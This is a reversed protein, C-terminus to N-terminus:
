ITSTLSLPLSTLSPPSLPLHPLSTLSPPSLPLHSLSTLSPPSLSTLSPPSLSLYTLPLHPPLSLSPPSPSLSTPLSPLSPFLSPLSPPFHPFSPPHSPPTLLTFSTFYSLPPSSHSPSTLPALRMVSSDTPHWCDRVQAARVCKISVLIGTLRSAEDVALQVFRQVLQCLHLRSRRLLDHQVPLGLKTWSRCSYFAENGVLPALQCHTTNSFQM